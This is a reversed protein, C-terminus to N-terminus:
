YSEDYIMTLREMLFSRFAKVTMDYFRVQNPNYNRQESKSGDYLANNAAIINRNTTAFAQRETGDKKMFVIHVIGRSLAKRVIDATVHVTMIDDDGNPNVSTVLEVTYDEAKQATKNVDYGADEAIRRLSSKDGKWTDGDVDEGEYIPKQASEVTTQDDKIDAVLEPLTQFEGDTLTKAVEDGLEKTSAYDSKDIKRIQGPAPKLFVDIIEAIDWYERLAKSQADNVSNAHLWVSCVDDDLSSIYKIIYDGEVRKSGDPFDKKSAKGKGRASIKQEFPVKRLVDKRESSSVADVAGAARLNISQVIEDAYKEFESIQSLKKLYDYASITRMYQEDKFKERQRNAVGNLYEPSMENLIKKTM